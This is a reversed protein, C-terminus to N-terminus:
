KERLEQTDKPIQINECETHSKIKLISILIEPFKKQLKKVDKKASMFDAYDVSSEADQDWSDDGVYHLRIGTDHIESKFDSYISFTKRNTVKKM